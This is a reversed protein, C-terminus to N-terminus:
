REEEAGLARRLLGMADDVTVEVFHENRPQITVSCGERPCHGLCGTATVWVKSALGAGLTARKLADFVAPGSGGCDSRLPDDPKRANVCVFLQAVPRLTSAKM